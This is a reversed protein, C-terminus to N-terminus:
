PEESRLLRKELLEADLDVLAAVDPGVLGLHGADRPDEGGAVHRAALRQHHPRDAFAAVGGLVDVPIQRVAVGHQRGLRPLPMPRTPTTRQPTRKNPSVTQPSMASASTM